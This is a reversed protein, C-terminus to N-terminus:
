VYYNLMAELHEQKGSTSEPEGHKKVFEQVFVLLLSNILSRQYFMLRFQACARAKDIFTSKHTLNKHLHKCLEFQKKRTRPRFRRHKFHSGKIDVISNEKISNNTLQKVTRQM